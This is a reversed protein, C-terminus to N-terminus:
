NKDFLNNIKSIAEDITSQDPIMVYNPQTPYSYTVDYGDSGNVSISEINWEPMDKLQLKVLKYVDKSEINTVFSGSLSSLISDYNLLMERSAMKKLVAEIVAMQNEGRHRDGSSYSKRERAFALAHKSDMHNMGSTFYCTKDTYARFSIDSYVDVGGLLDIVETFTTFNVKIYYNLKIGMFDQVTNISSNIGYYGAHTLKDKLGTTGHLQVYYDRPIHILLVKHTVPNISMIINVDSRSVTEIPGDTDIGSIFVNFPENTIDISKLEYDKEKKIEFDFISKTNKGFEEDMEELTSRMSGEVIMADISSELLDKKVLSIDDYKEMIFDIKGKVFDVAQEVGTLSNNNYGIIKGDLDKISNYNSNKLVLVYYHELEYKKSQIKNIFSTTKDFYKIGLISIITIIFSIIYLFVRVGLKSKKYFMFFVLLFEIICETIVIPILYKNPLINSLKLTFLLTSIILLLSFLVGLILKNKKM